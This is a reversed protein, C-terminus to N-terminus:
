KTTFSKTCGLCHNESFNELQPPLRCSDQGLCPLHDFECHVPPLPTFCPAVTLTFCRVATLFDCHINKSGHALELWFRTLACTRKRARAKSLKKKRPKLSELTSQPSFKLVRFLWAPKLSNDYYKHSAAM